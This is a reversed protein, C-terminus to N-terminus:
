ANGTHVHGPFPQFIASMFLYLRENRRWRDGFCYSPGVGSLGPLLEKHKQRHALMFWGTRPVFVM